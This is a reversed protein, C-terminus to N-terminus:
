VVHGIIGVVSASANPMEFTLSQNPGARETRGVAGHRQRLAPSVEKFGISVFAVVARALGALSEVRADPFRGLAAGLAGGLEILPGERGISMGGAIAAWSSAVRSATARISLQVHGLAVAEM